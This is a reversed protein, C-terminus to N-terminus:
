TDEEITLMWPLWLRLVRHLYNQVQFRLEPRPDPSALLLVIGHCSRPHRLFLWLEM